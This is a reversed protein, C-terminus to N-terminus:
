LLPQVARRVLESLGIGEAAARARLKELWGDPVRARLVKPYHTLNTGKPRGRKRKPQDTM